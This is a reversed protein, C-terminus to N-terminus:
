YTDLGMCEAEYDSVYGYCHIHVGPFIERAYDFAEGIGGVVEVLFEEGCLDSDEDDIIFWFTSPDYDEYM